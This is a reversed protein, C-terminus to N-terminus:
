INSWLLDNILPQLWDQQSDMVAAKKTTLMDEADVQAFWVQKPPGDM